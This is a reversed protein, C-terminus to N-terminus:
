EVAHPATAALLALTKKQAARGDCAIFVTDDGAVTGVASPWQAADIAIGVPNAQGADTLVVILCDGAPRVRRISAAARKLSAEPPPAAALAYRGGIKVLGLAAIDRSVSAQTCDVGERRLLRVLETQTGVARERILEEILRRRKLSEPM